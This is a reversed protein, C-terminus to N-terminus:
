PQDPVSRDLLHALVALLRTAPDTPEDDCRWAVVGDPRVLSAGAIGIGYREALTGTPDTLDPGLGYTDIRIGLIEAAHKAAAHWVGGEQGTILVWGTGFLDMTSLEVGDRVLPVHPARFGPRGSPRFPDETPATDDDDAIVATSRVRYGLVLRIQDIPEPAGSLDLEPWMRQKANHLSTNVVQEAFPKREAEYTDLLAPGAEGHLVSALKWALDYGDGIATNGGLGGTPPTVKAADGALFVRGASFRDAVQAGLSWTSVSRIKPALTPDDLAIRILETIREEGFDLQSEGREPHYEVAFIARDDDVTTGFAGTFVKNRLYYLEIAGPEVHASLDASFVVGILHSLNGKGQRSIGLKQRIPSRNGDAAVLYDARVTSVRETWRDLLRATVGAPDQEFSVLETSFRIRAGFEEARDRMIPEVRDQSAMAWPAASAASTDLDETDALVTHFVPGHVSEAVKITIGTTPGPRAAFVQDAIGAVRFFEMTRPHQGSARPHVSTTPHKEVVLVDVGRQALFMATSLGALGAGVILVSTREDSM